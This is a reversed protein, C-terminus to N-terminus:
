SISFAPPAILRAACYVRAEHAGLLHARAAAKASAPKSGSTQLWYSSM